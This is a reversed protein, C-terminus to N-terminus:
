RRKRGRSRDQEITRRVLEDFEERTRLRKYGAAVFYSSDPRRRVLHEMVADQISDRTPGVAVVIGEAPADYKTVATVKILMWQGPYAEAAEDITMPRPEAAGPADPESTM